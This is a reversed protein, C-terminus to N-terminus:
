HTSALPEEDAPPAIEELSSVAMGLVHSVFNVFSIAKLGNQESPFDTSEGHMVAHRNLQPIGARRQRSSETIPTTRLLPELYARELTEPDIRKAFRYIGNGTFIQYGTLDYCIGDAQAFLAPISLSYKGERHAAFAERILDARVPHDACLAEQIRDLSSLFHLALEDNVEEATGNELDEKFRVIEHMDMEPDLYWGAEALAVLNEKVRVPYRLWFDSIETFSPLKPRLAELLSGVSSFQQRIAKQTRLLDAQYIDQLGQISCLSEAFAHGVLTQDWKPSLAEMMQRHRSAQEDLLRQMPSEVATRALQGIIDQLSNIPRLAQQAQRRQEGLSGAVINQMQVGTTEGILREITDQVNNIPGIAQQVQRLQESQASRMIDQTQAAISGGMIKRMQEAASGGMIKRMQEAASFQSKYLDLTLFQALCDLGPRKVVKRPKDLPPFAEDEAACPLDGTVRPEQTRDEAGTDENGQEPKNNEPPDTAM